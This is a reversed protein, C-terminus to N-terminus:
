NGGVFSELRDTEFIWERAGAERAYAATPSRVIWATAATHLSRGSGDKIMLPFIGENSQADLQAIASLLDNAMSTQGLSVTVRASRNSTKSRTGHGDAGMQLTFLDENYEVTVVADEAFGSMIVPGFIVSVESAAYTKVAM